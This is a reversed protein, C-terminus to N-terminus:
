VPNFCNFRQLWKENLISSDLKTDVNRFTDVLCELFDHKQFKTGTGRLSMSRESTM